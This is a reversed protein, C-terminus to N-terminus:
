RPLVRIDFPQDPTDAALKEIVRDDKVFSVEFVHKRAVEVVIMTPAGM